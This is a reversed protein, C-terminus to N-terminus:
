HEESRATPLSKAVESEEALVGKIIRQLMVEHQGYSGLQLQRGTVGVDLRLAMGAEARQKQPFFAHAVKGIQRYEFVEPRKTNLAIETVHRGQASVGAMMHKSIRYDLVREQVQAVIDLVDSQLRRKTVQKQEILDVVVLQDCSRGARGKGGYQRSWTNSVDAIVELHSEAGLEREVGRASGACVSRDDAEEVDKIIRYDRVEAVPRNISFEGLSFVRAISIQHQKSKPRSRPRRTQLRPASTERSRSDM